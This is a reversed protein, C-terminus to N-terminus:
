CAPPRLVAAGRQPRGSYNRFGQRQWDKTKLTWGPDSTTGFEEACRGPQRLTLSPMGGEKRGERGQSKARNGHDSCQADPHKHLLVQCWKSGAGYSLHERPNHLRIGGGPGASGWFAVM